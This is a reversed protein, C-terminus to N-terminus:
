FSLYKFLPSTAKYTTLISVHFHLFPMSIFILISSHRGVDIRWRTINTTVGMLFILERVRVYDWANSSIMIRKCPKRASEAMCLIKNPSLVLNCHTAPLPFFCTFNSQYQPFKLENNDPVQCCHAWVPNQRIHITSVVVVIKKGKIKDGMEQGGDGRAGDRMAGPQVQEKKSRMSVDDRTNAHGTEWATEQVRDRVGDGM